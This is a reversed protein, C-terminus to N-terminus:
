CIMLQNIQSVRLTSHKSFFLYSLHSLICVVFPLITNCYKKKKRKTSPVLGVIKHLSFEHEVMIWVTTKPHYNPYGPFCELPISVSNPSFYFQQLPIFGRSPRSSFYGLGQPIVFFLAYLLTCRDDQSSLLTLCSSQLNSTLKLSKTLGQRLKLFNLLSSMYSLSTQPEFGLVPPSFSSSYGLEM